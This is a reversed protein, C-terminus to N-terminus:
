QKHGKFTFHIEMPMVGPQIVYSLEMDKGPIKGSINGSYKTTAVEISYREKSVSYVNGNEKVDVGDVTLAPITMMRETGPMVFSCEPLTVTVKGASAKDDAIVVTYEGPLDCYIGTVNGELTGSYSGTVMAADVPENNKDGCALAVALLCLLMLGLLIKFKVMM